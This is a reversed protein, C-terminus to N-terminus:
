NWTVTYGNIGPAIRVGIHKTKWRRGDVHHFIRQIWRWRSTSVIPMMEKWLCRTTSGTKRDKLTEHTTSQFTADIPPHTTSGVVWFNWLHEGFHSNEGCVPSFSWCTRRSRACSLYYTLNEMSPYVPYLYIYICMIFWIKSSSHM